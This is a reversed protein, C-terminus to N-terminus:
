KRAGLVREFTAAAEMQENLRSEFMALIHRGASRNTPAVGYVKVRWYMVERRALAARRKARSLALLLPLRHPEIYTPHIM